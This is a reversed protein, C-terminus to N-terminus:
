TSYRSGTPIPASCNAKSCSFCFSAASPRNSEARLFGSGTRGRVMPTTVEGPPATIKRVFDEQLIVVARDYRPKSIWEVFAASRSYPLSSVLVDFEPSAEFADALHIRVKGGVAAETLACNEPDVEYGELSTAVRALKVTLAGRGTGIELVREGVNIGALSVMRKVVSEDVLYHQGLRRRKM